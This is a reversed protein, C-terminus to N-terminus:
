ITWWRGTIDIKTTSGGLQVGTNGSKLEPFGNSLTTNANMNTADKYASMTECDIDVYGNVSTVSVTQSGITASCTGSGYIRILPRSPFETPNTITGNATFSEATEGSTLFRQPKCDFIVQAKGTLNYASTSFDLGGSVRAMRYTDPHYTDELRCYGTPSLLWAKIDDTKDRFENMVVINYPVQVNQFRGEDRILDGNRGPISTKTVVRQPANYTNQGGIYIGFDDWSDKGNFSFTNIM